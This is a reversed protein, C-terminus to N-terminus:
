SPPWLRIEMDLELPVDVCLAFHDTGQCQAAPSGQSPSPGGTVIAQTDCPFTSFFSRVITLFPLLWIVM